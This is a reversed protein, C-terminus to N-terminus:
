QSLTSPLLTGIFNNSDMMALETIFFEITVDDWGEVPM